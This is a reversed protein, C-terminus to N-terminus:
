SAREWPPPVLHKKVATVLARVRAPRRTRTPIVIAVAGDQPVAFEDLVPVLRGDRIAPAVLWSALRAFGLGAHAAQLIFDGLNANLVSHVRVSGDRYPWRFRGGLTLCPLTALEAPHRPRGM